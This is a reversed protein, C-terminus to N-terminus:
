YVTAELAVAVGYAGGALDAVVTAVTGGAALARDQGIVTVTVTAFETM